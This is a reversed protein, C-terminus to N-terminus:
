NAVLLGEKWTHVYKDCCILSFQVDNWNICMCLCSKISRKAHLFVLYDITERETRFQCAHNLM